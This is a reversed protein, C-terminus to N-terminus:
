DLTVTLANANFRPLDGSDITKSDSLSGWMLINGETAADAIFFYTITGWEATAEPFAIETGNKKTATTGSAAPWNTANNTVAVRAYAGGTPEAVTTGTTADTIAATALGVYVTAPPTYAVGGLVHDLLKKELYDSFSGTM